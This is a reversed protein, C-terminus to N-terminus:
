ATMYFWQILLEMENKLVQLTMQACLTPRYELKGRLPSHELGRSLNVSKQLSWFHNLLVM